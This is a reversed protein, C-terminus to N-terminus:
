KGRELIAKIGEYLLFFFVVIGSFLGLIKVTYGEHNDKSHEKAYEDLKGCPQNPSTHNEVQQVLVKIDTHVANVFDRVEGLDKGFQTLQEQLTM